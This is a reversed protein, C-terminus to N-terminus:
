GTKLEPQYIKPNSASRTLINIPTQTGRGTPLPILANYSNILHSTNLSIPLDVQSDADMAGPSSVFHQPEIKPDLRQFGGGDRPAIGIARDAYSEQPSLQVTDRLENFNSYSTASHDDNM